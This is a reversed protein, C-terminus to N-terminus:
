VLESTLVGVEMLLTGSAQPTKVLGTASLGLTAWSTQRVCPMETAPADRCTFWGWSVVSLVVQRFRTAYKLRYLCVAM